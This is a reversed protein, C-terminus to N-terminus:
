GGGRLIYVGRQVAWAADAVIMALVGLNVLTLWSVSRGRLRFREGRLVAHLGSSLVLLLPIFLALILRDGAAIPAYWFYLLVYFSFYGFFFLLLPLNERILRRARPWRVVAAALLLGGYVLLYDVYGFSGLVRTMVKAAGDQLRRMMQGATHEAVYKELSPIESAPMVPWGLRDGYAKTGAEAEEWSDYWVYFTSNVNYFYRGTLRQSVRLYPALVVLFVASAILIALWHSARRPTAGDAAERTKQRALALGGLVGAVVVFVFLGPWLSAKTLHALGAVIGAAIATPVDPREVLRWLLLFLGTNLVYFLLEAQVWGAKYIFVSFSVILMLNLAHLPEFRRFLIVALAALLVMSLLLNFYKASLFFEPDTM